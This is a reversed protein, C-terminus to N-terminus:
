RGRKPKPCKPSQLPFPQSIRKDSDTVVVRLRMRRDRSACLPSAASFAGRVRNSASAKGVCAFGLGPIFGECGFSEGDIPASSNRGVVLVEPEFGDIQKGSTLSYGTIPETCAVQYTMEVEDVARDAFKAGGFCAIKNTAPATGPSVLAAAVLVPLCLFFWLVRIRPRSRIM